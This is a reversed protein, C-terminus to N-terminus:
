LCTSSSLWHRMAISGGSLLWALAYILGLLTDVVWLRRKIRSYQKALKQREADLQANMGSMIAHRTETM